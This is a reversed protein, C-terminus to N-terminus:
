PRTGAALAEIEGAGLVRDYVALEDLQGRFKQRYTRTQPERSHGLTFRPEFPGADPASAPAEKVELGDVYLRTAGDQAHTFAVHVWRKGTLPQPSELRVRWVDSRVVLAHDRVAILFRNAGDGERQQAVVAQHYRMFREPKVWVAVSLDGGTARAQPQPCVLSGTDGVRLAGGVVGDTWLAGDVAGRAACDHGQGSLDRAVRSGAGDDFRWYGTLGSGLTAAPDGGGLTATFTVTRRAASSPLAVTRPRASAPPTVAATPTV